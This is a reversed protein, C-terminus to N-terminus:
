MLMVIILSAMGIFIIAVVVPRSMAYRMLKTSFRPISDLTDKTLRIIM